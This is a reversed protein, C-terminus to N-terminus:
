LPTYSESLYELQRKKVNKYINEWFSSHNLHFGASLSSDPFHLGSSNEASDSCYCQFWSKKVPIHHMTKIVQGEGTKPHHAESKKKYSM